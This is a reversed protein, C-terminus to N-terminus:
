PTGSTVNRSDVSPASDPAVPSTSQGPATPHAAGADLYTQLIKGAAELEWVVDRPISPNARAQQLLANLKAAIAARHDPHPEKKGSRRFSLSLDGSNATQRVQITFGTANTNEARWFALLVLFGLSLVYFVISPM